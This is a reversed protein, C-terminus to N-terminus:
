WVSGWGLVPLAVKADRVSGRQHNWACLHAYFNPDDKAAASSPALYEELKGHPSRTLVGIVERKSLVKEM